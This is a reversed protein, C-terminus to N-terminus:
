AIRRWCYAIEYPPMNNHPQNGGSNGTAPNTNGGATKIDDVSLCRNGNTYLAPNMNTTLGFKNTTNDWILTKHNHEPMENINLIHVAEGLINNIVLSYTGPNLQLKPFEFLQSGHEYIITIKHGETSSSFASLDVKDEVGSNTHYLYFAGTSPTYGWAVDGYLVVGEGRKTEDFIVEISNPHGNINYNLQYNDGAALVFRDKVQEWTGGLFDHPSINNSSWYYSGIPYVLNVLMDKFDTSNSLNSLDLSDAKIAGEAGITEFNENLSDFMEAVTGDYIQDLSLAMVPDNETRPLKNRAM